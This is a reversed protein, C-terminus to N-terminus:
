QKNGKLGLKQVHAAYVPHTELYIEDFLSQYDIAYDSLDIYRQPSDVQIRALEPTDSVYGRLLNFAFPMATWGYNWIPNTSVSRGYKDDNKAARMFLMQSPRFRMLQVATLLPQEKINNGRNDTESVNVGPTSYTITRHGLDDSIGQATKQSSSKIYAFNSSNARITGADQEGYISELQEMNQLVMTFEFNYGLASSLKTTLGPWKPFNGFEDMLFHIRNIVKNKNRQAWDYNEQYVQEIFFMALDKYEQRLPPLVVFIATRKESYDFEIEPEGHTINTEVNKIRYGKIMKLGTYPDIKVKMGSYEYAKAASIKIFKDMLTDPLGQLDHGNEPDKFHIMFETKEDLKPEIAFQVLGMEDAIILEDYKKGGATFQIGVKRNRFYEPLQLEMVRPFGVSSYRFDNITTLKRVSIDSTFLAVDAFMSAYINRKTEQGGMGAQNFAAIAMDLLDDQEGNKFMETQKIKLSAIMLDLKNMEKTKEMPGPAHTLLEDNLDVTELVTGLKQLMETVNGITVKEWSDERAMLWMTALTLGEFTSAAGSTWFKNKADDTDPFITTSVQTIKQKARAYNRKKAYYIAQSLLQIPMSYNLNDFNAIKIDYNHRKLLETTKTSLEGKLDGIVLSQDKSGRAVLDITPLVLTEGKGSRTDGLIITNVPKEDIYYKGPLQWSKPNPDGETRSDYKFWQKPVNRPRVSAFYLSLGDLNWNFKHGVPVGGYGEFTLGRDPVSKYQKDLEYPETFTADGYEDQQENVVNKWQRRLYFMAICLVVTFTVTWVLTLGITPPMFSWSLPNYWVGSKIPTIIHWWNSPWVLELTAAWVRDSQEYISGRNIGMFESWMAEIIPTALNAIILAFWTRLLMAKSLWAPSGKKLVRRGFYPDRKSRLIFKLMGVVGQKTSVRIIHLKIFFVNTAHFEGLFIFSHMFFSVRKICTDKM